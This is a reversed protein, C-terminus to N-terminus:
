QVWELGMNWRASISRRLVFRGYLGRRPEFGRTEPVDLPHLIRLDYPPKSALAALYRGLTKKRIRKPKLAVQNVIYGELQDKPRKIYRAERLSVIIGSDGFDIPVHCKSWPEPILKYLKVWLQRFRGDCGTDNLIRRSYLRLANAVQLVYPLKSRPDKRLFFPRVPHGRFYDEGCSEYFNGALFSKRTNVKFGLFELNDILEASFQQPLIIDDGYVTVDDSSGPSCALTLAAFILTELEFTFGNGMSSFKELEVIEDGVKTTPSRALDLLEFWDPPLLSLVTMYAISDSAASLDITSLHDTYARKAFSQNRGQDSLDIGIRRLRRRLLKGIGKQVFINLTPEVCIGRNTKANKPVSTFRNGEVIVPRSKYDWWTKGIIAKYFPYLPQTLHIEEDYKDSAVSGVGPVGTTAGPGFGFNDQIFELDSTTLPGLLKAIIFRAKEIMPPLGGIPIEALKDNTLSCSAESDFFSEKAVEHLDVDLPLNMSKQLITTALYDDAFHQRDQYDYPSIELTALDSWMQHEILMWVHLSRPTDIVECLAQTVSLELKLDSSLDVARGISM